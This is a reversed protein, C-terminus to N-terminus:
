RKPIKFSKKYELWTSTYVICSKTINHERLTSAQNPTYFMTNYKFQTSSRSCMETALFLYIHTQTM